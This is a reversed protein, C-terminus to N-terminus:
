RGLLIGIGTLISELMAPPLKDVRAALLGKDLSIIQSVSAVSDKPLGTVRSSLEVNGPALSWKLNATLPVCVVTAISSRNLADNQVVVV